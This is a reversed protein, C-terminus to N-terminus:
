SCTAASVLHTVVVATIIATSVISFFVLKVLTGVRIGTIM